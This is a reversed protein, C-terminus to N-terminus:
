SPAHATGVPEPRGAFMLKYKIIDVIELEDSGADDGNEQESVGQKRRIVAMAKPLKKVEGNLRQHQGIYLYVRKMWGSGIAGPKYDPFVLRGFNFDNLPEGESDKPLNIIGQLELLALGAPTQVTQPLPSSGASANNYSPFVKISEM